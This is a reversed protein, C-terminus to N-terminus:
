PYPRSAVITQDMCCRGKGKVKNCDLIAVKAGEEAFRKAAAAGCGDAGGSVVAVKGEFRKM